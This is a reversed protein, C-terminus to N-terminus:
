FSFMWVPIIFSRVIFVNYYYRDLCCMGSGFLRVTLLAFAQVKNKNESEIVDLYRDNLEGFLDNKRKSHYVSTCYGIQIFEHKHLTSIMRKFEMVNVKSESNYLSASHDHILCVRVLWGRGKQWAFTNTATNLLHSFHSKITLPGVCLCAKVNVGYAEWRSWFEGQVEASLTSKHWHALTWSM